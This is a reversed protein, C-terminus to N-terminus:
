EYRLSKVPNARASRISHYSITIWSILLAISGALILLLWDIEIKYPFDKLWLNMLYYGVPAALVFSIIVLKNFEGSILLIIDKFTAGMAKRVGIEKTRQEATYTTLGFLGLAAIFVALVTFLSFLQGTRKESAHAQEFQMDMFSYEFPAMPAFEDWKLKVQELLGAIDGPKANIILNGAQRTPIIMMPSIINNLSKFHFDELVGIIEYTHHTGFDGINPLMMKIGIPNELGFIRAAAQNILVSQHEALSVPNFDSGNVIKLGLAKVFNYDSFYIQTPHLEEPHGQVHISTTNNNGSIPYSSSYSAFNVLNLQNLAQQFSEMQQDLAYTNHLIIIQDKDFGLQKNQIFSLQNYAVLTSIILIISVTFQLVVLGSRFNKRNKGSVIGGKLVNVTKYGSLLFAPYIGALIGVVMAGSLLFLIMSPSEFYGSKLEFGFVQNIEPLVLEVLGIALVLAIFTYFASEFLFQRILLGRSSGVSKRVGVERARKNARATSLNIFNVCALILIILAVFSFIYVYKIDGNVDLEVGSGAKLYIDTLAQLKLEFYTGNKEFSELTAGSFKEAEPMVYREVLDPFKAQLSAPDAYEQLLIYTFFNQVLWYPRIEDVSSTLSVLIDFDFHSSAPVDACIGTVKYATQDASIITNGLPDEQGFYKQATSKTLVLSNPEKLAQRPNGQLLDFSFVDFFSSDARIVKKEKVSEDDLVVTLTTPQLRVFQEVEPYEEVITPGTPAGMTAASFDKGGFRAEGIVRYIRDARTHFRDYSLENKVFFVIVLFSFLGLTLGIINIAAYLKQKILNRYAIKLFNIIM